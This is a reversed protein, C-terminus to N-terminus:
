CMLINGLGSLVAVRFLRRERVHQDCCNKCSIYNLLEQPSIQGLRLGICIQYWLDDFLKSIQFHSMFVLQRPSTHIFLQLNLYCRISFTSSSISHIETFNIRSFIGWCIIVFLSRGNLEFLILLYLVGFLLQGRSSLIPPPITWDYVLLWV